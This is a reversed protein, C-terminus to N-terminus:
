PMPSIVQISTVSLMFFASHHGSQPFLSLTDSDWLYRCRGKISVALAPKTIDPLHLSSGSSSFWTKLIVKNSQRFRIHNGIKLPGRAAHSHELIVSSSFLLRISPAAGNRGRNEVGPYGIKVERGAAPASHRLLGPYDQSTVFGLTM